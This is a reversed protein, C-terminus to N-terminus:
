DIFKITIMGYFINDHYFEVRYSKNSNDLSFSSVMDSKKLVLSDESDVGAKSFGIVNVRLLSKLVKFSKKVELIQGFKTKIINGDIEFDVNQNAKPSESAKWENNSFSYRQGDDGSIIGTSEQINYDLIKGKM